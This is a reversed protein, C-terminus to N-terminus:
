STKTVKRKRKNGGKKATILEEKDLNKQGCDVCYFTTCDGDVAFKCWYAQWSNGCVEKVPWSGDNAVGHPCSKGSCMQNHLQKDSQIYFKFDSVSVKRMDSMSCHACGCSGKPAKTFGGNRKLAEVM